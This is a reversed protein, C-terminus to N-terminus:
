APGTEDRLRALVQQPTQGGANIVPARTRIDQEGLVDVDMGTIIVAAVGTLDRQEELGEVSYGQERLLRRVPELGPEVVIRGAM